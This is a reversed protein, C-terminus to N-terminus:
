EKIVTAAESLVDAPITLGAAKAAPLNVILSLTTTPEFPMSGPDEGRMVRSAMHAAERGADYYDRALVVAAGQEAQVKQFAFVPLRARRAAQAIGGFASATMNGGIQCLADIDRSMLALAADPIDTSTAVGVSVLEIGSKAAVAELDEKTFVMNSEAPVYLTGIRRVSGMVRKIMEIMEANASVFPVGTVYPLHDENSTGAGAAIASAVYTFVVPVRGQSRQIAAQLTPTSLTLLLDAGESIAADALSNVTAMDGQANRIKLNYDRGEVLQAEELGALIGEECEEVDIVNNFEILQLQWTKPLPPAATVAKKKAHTGSADTVADARAVVDEPFRWPNRLGDLAATNVFLKEPVVNRVPITAPDTGKLVDAALTGTLRGVEYYNAGIDFIAGKEVNGPISTFVPIHGRKAAAVVSDIAVIVTVDGGVWIAEAGRSVLSGTAEFVVSSNEVNAELLEIGLEECVDRAILVNAESNSEAPNWAVGVRKLAPFVQRALELTERVPQMTGLGTLYPPHDLPNERSIGVGTGAPDSVLGFVHQKKVGANANAVTQLSLTTATLILDYPGTTIEKAIANATPVDNEANFRSIEITSSEVFGKEALADIMGRVGDDIIGQSAHQFIAVHPVSGPAARRQKWDSILLVSSAAAILLLGLWLRKM